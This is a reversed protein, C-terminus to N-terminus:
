CEDSISKAYVSGTYITCNIIKADISKREPIIKIFVLICYIFEVVFVAFFVYSIM